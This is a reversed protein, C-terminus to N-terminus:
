VKVKGSYVRETEQFGKLKLDTINSLYRRSEPLLKKYCQETIFVNNDPLLEHVKILRQARHITVGTIETRRWKRGSRAPEGFPTIEGIALSAVICLSKNHLIERNLSEFWPNSQDLRSREIWDRIDNSVDNVFEWAYNTMKVLRYDKLNYKALQPHFIILAADGIFKERNGGYQEYMEIRNEIIKYYEGLFNIWYIGLTRAIDTSKEMDIFM